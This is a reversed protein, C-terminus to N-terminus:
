VPHRLQEEPGGGCNETCDVKELDSLGSLANCGLALAAFLAMQAARQGM